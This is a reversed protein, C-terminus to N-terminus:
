RVLPAPYSRSNWSPSQYQVGWFYLGGLALNLVVVLAIMAGILGLLPDHFPDDLGEVGDVQVRPAIDVPPTSSAAYVKATDRVDVVPAIVLGPMTTTTM